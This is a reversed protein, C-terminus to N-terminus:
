SSRCYFMAYLLLNKINSPFCSITKNCVACQIIVKPKRTAAEFCQRTCYKAVNYFHQAKYDSRKLETNCHKCFKTDYKVYLALIM